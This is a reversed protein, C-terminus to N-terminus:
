WSSAPLWGGDRRFLAPANNDTHDHSTNDSDNNHITYTTINNHNNNDNNIPRHQTPHAHTRLHQFYLSVSVSNTRMNLLTQLTHVSLVSVIDYSPKLSGAEKVWLLTTNRILTNLRRPRAVIPRKEWHQNLMYGKRKGYTTLYGLLNDWEWETCAM